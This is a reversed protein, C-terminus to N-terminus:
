GDVHLLWVEKELAEELPIETMEFIFDALAQAKITTRPLYFIDYESFEVVWKVLRRSTDPKGLTQKLPLNTRVGIPYSLLLPTTEYNHDGTCSGNERHPIGDKQEMSCRASMTFLCKKGGDERILISSVAQPTDSLYLYLNFSDTHGPVQFSYLSLMFILM